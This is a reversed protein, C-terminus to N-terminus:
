SFGLISNARHMVEREGETEADDVNWRALGMARMGEANAVAAVDTATSRGAHLSEGVGGPFDPSPVGASKNLEPARQCM